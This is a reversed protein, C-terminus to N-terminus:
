WMAATATRLSTKDRGDADFNTPALWRQIATRVAPWEEGTISFWATDRNRGKIVMHNAFLGEFRFGLRLAARRSHLNAADCKWELRRYGAAMAHRMLVFIGETTQHTGRVEPVFWINGVEVVAHHPTIRMLTAMGIPRDTDNDVVTFWMPDDSESCRTFWEAFDGLSEFPGYGMFRWTKERDPDGHTAAWLGGTDHARDTPELRVTRGRLAFRAPVEIPLPDTVLDRQPARRHRQSALEDPTPLLPESM